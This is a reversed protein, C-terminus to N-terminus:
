RAEFVYLTRKTDKIKKKQKLKFCTNFAQEMGDETYDSFIDKRTSLLKQVQSDSKPVFEVIVYRGLQAFYEAIRAFPLNNSIALHHIIALAVVADCRLRDSVSPREQNAWGIAGGPNTIDVLLPLMQTEGHHKVFQYNAEVANPDIDTCITTIGLDNLVRSYRGNNGGIDVATAIGLPRILDALLSAKADAAEPTYNTKDYYDGWETNASPPALRRVTRELSDLIGTLGMESVQRTQKQHETEKAKQARGHLAIHMAIGPRLKARHPLLKSALDLPIGDLHVRLLQLLSADVFAM